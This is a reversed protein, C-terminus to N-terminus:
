SLLLKELESTPQYHYITRNLVNLLPYREIPVRESLEKLTNLGESKIGEDAIGEAITKGVRYNFSSDTIGTTILDGLGALSEALLPDSELHILIQKMEKLVTVALKGKTNDGLHMGDNMGFAIAYVNKLVGCLALGPLDSTPQLSVKAKMFLESITDYWSMDSLGLLGAAQRGVAIEEANMPGYALGYIHQDKLQDGLIKDMTTFDSAVGKSFSIIVRQDGTATKSIERAVEKNAWSPICLLIIEHQRVLEKLTTVTSRDDLKDYFEVAISRRFFARGLAQGLEGGGVIGVKKITKQLM